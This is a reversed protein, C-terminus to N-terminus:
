IEGKRFSLDISDVALLKEFKKTLNRAEIM